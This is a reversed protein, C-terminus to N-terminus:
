GCNMSCREPTISFGGCSYLSFKSFKLRQDLLELVLDSYLQECFCVVFIVFSVSQLLGRSSSECCVFFWCLWPWRSRCSSCFGSGVLPTCVPWALFDFHSFFILTSGFEPPVSVLIWALLVRHHHCFSRLDHGHAASSRPVVFSLAPCHVTPSGLVQAHPFHHRCSIPDERCILEATASFRHV